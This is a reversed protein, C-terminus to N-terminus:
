GLWSLLGKTECAREDGRGEHWHMGEVQGSSAPGTSDRQAPGAGCAAQGGGGAGM